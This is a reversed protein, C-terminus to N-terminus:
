EHELAERAKKVDKRKASDMKPFSLNLGELADIIAEAVVVRTGSLRHTTM